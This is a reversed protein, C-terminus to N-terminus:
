GEGRKRRPPEHKQIEAVAEDDTLGTVVWGEAELAQVDIPKVAISGGVPVARGDYVVGQYHPPKM